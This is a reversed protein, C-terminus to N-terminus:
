PKPVFRLPYGRGMQAFSAEGQSHVALITEPGLPRVAVLDCVGPNRRCGLTHAYVELVASAVEYSRTTAAVPLAIELIRPQGIQRILAKLPGEHHNFSLSEGGWDELLGTVGWDDIPHPSSTLWFKGARSGLRDELYPSAAYLQDAVEEDLDGAGVLRNLRARILPLDMPQVGHERLLTVEAATLRTYHWARIARSEVHHQLEECFTFYAAGHPNALMPGRLTQAERELWMRHGTDWYAQVLEAEGDLLARLEPDYSDVDWVDFPTLDSVAEGEGGIYSRRCGSEGLGGSSLSAAVDISHWM